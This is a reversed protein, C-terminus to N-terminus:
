CEEWEGDDPLSYAYKEECSFVSYNEKEWGHGDIWYLRDARDETNRICYKVDSNFFPSEREQLM